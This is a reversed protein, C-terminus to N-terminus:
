RIKMEIKKKRSGTSQSIDLSHQIRHKRSFFHTSNLDSFTLMHMRGDDYLKLRGAWSLGVSRIM